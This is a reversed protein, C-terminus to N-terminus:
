AGILVIILGALGMKGGGGGGRGGGLSRRDEINSSSRQNDLKM